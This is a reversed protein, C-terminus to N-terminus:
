LPRARLGARTRRPDHQHRVYPSAGFAIYRALDGLGVSDPERTAATLRVAYEILAPDVYVEDVRRQMETLLETGIIRQTAPPPAIARDVIVFEETASPYGVLVKVMFRDVQAEPLPYTGQSEIPNQTAIVFFPGPCPTRRGVSTM